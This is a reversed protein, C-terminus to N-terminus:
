EDLNGGRSGGYPTVGRKSTSIFDAFERCLPDHGLEKEILEVATANAHRGLFFIDFARKLPTIHERLGARRLAILNLSSVARDLIAVCFPPLDQGLGAGGGLMALRGIRAFQHIGAIGGMTVGDGVTVHGALLASNAFNCDNGIVCDHGVHSSVMFYNRDGIRTPHETFSRHVTVSERFNNDDGVVTGAGPTRPDFRRHQPAFGICAFPYFLNRAGVTLPGQLHVNAILRTGPGLTIDGELICNPGIAVDDALRASPPVIATPHIDPM